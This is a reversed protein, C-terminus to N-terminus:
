ILRDFLEVAFSIILLRLCELDKTLFLSALVVIATVIWATIKSADSM